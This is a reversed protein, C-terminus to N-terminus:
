NRSPNVSGNECLIEKKQGNYRICQWEFLRCIEEKEVMYSGLLICSICYFLYTIFIDITRLLLKGLDLCRYKPFLSQSNPSVKESICIITAKLLIQLFLDLRPWEEWLHSEQIRKNKPQNKTQKNTKSSNDEHKWLVTVQSCGTGVKRKGKFGPHKWPFLSNKFSSKWIVNQVVFSDKGM